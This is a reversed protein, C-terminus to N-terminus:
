ACFLTKDHPCLPLGIGNYCTKCIVSTSGMSSSKGMEFTKLDAGSKGSKSISKGPFVPILHNIINKFSIPFIM